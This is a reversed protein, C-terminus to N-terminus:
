YIKKEFALRESGDTVQIIGCYTFGERKIVKLMPTNNKHTDVRLWEIKQDKCKQEILNFLQSALRQGKYRTAVSMRHITGYRATTSLWKGKIIEYTPDKDTRFALTAMVEDKSTYVFSYGKKIDELITQRNPYGNQWQNVNLEKLQLQAEAVIRLIAPINSETTAQFIYNNTQM